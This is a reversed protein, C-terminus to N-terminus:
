FKYKRKDLCLGGYICLIKHFFKGKKRKLVVFNSKFYFNIKELTENNKSDDVFCIFFNENQLYKLIQNNLEKILDQSHYVPILIVFKFNKYKEM